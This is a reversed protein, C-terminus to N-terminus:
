IDSNARTLETGEDAGVDADEALGHGQHYNLEM